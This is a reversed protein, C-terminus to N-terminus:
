VQFTNASASMAQNLVVYSVLRKDGPTDERALVVSAQVAPHGNLVSTIEDPEIRYGRIKIQHDIRGLFDVQGDPLFRALDGTKYLRAGTEASWPPAIFKEANVECSNVYGEGVGM